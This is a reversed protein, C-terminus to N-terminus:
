VHYNFETCNYTLRTGFYDELPSIDDTSVLELKLGFSNSGNFMTDIENAILDTRLRKKGTATDVCPLIKTASFIFIQIQIEKFTRDIVRPVRFVMTIFSQGKQTTGPIFYYPFIQTFLLSESQVTSNERNTLYDKIKQNNSIMDMATARYLPIEALRM